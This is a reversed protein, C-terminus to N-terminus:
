TKRAVQRNAFVTGDATTGGIRTVGFFVGNKGLILGGAISSGDKGTGFSHLVTETWDGGPLAPPSLQFATGCGSSCLSIMETTGYINGASDFILSAAPSEGDGAASGFGYLINETWADGPVVPPVLQFVTGGGPGGFESTTGYLVGKGRLTLASLPNGGESSGSAPHFAHLV